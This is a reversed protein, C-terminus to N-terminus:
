KTIFPPDWHFERYLSLEDVIESNVGLNNGVKFGRPRAVLGNQRFCQINLWSGLKKGVGRRVTISTDPGGKRAVYGDMIGGHDLVVESLQKGLGTLLM